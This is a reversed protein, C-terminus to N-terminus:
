VFKLKQAAPQHYLVRCGSVAVSLREARRRCRRGCPLALSPDASIQRNVNRLMTPGSTTVRTCDTATTRAIIGITPTASRPQNQNLPVAYM